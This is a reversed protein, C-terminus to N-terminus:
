NQNQQPQGNIHDFAMNMAESATKPDVLLLVEGAPEAVWVQWKRTRYDHVCRIGVCHYTMSFEYGM